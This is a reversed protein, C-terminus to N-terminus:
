DERKQTDILAPPKTEERAQRAFTEANTQEANALTARPDIRVQEGMEELAKAAAEREALPTIDQPRLPVERASPYGKADADAAKIQYWEPEQASKTYFPLSSQCAGLLLALTPLLASAPLLIRIKM